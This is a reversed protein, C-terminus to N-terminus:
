FSYNNLGDMILHVLYISSKIKYKVMEWSFCMKVSSVKRYRNKKYHM